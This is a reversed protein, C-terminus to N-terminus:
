RLIFSLAVIGAMIVVTIIGIVKLEVKVYDLQPFPIVKGGPKTKAVTV